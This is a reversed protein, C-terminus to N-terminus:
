QIILKQITNLKDGSVKILYVGRDLNSVNMETKFLGTSPRFDNATIMRGNLDHISITMNQAKALNMEVCVLGNTTPNPYISLSAELLETVDLVSTHITGTNNEGFLSIYYAGNINNTYSDDAIQIKDGITIADEKIMSLLIIEDSTSFPSLLEVPTVSVFVLYMKGDKEVPEGQAIL